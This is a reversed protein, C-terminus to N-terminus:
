ITALLILFPVPILSIAALLPNIRFIMVAVLLVILVNTGLDPLAHAIMNEMNKSDNIVRSMLDGTQKDHFFGLHLSQLKAYM